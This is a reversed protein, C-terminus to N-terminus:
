FTFTGGLTVGLATSHDRPDVGFVALEGPMSLPAPGYYGFRLYNFQAYVRVNRAIEPVQRNFGLSFYNATNSQGYETPSRVYSRGMHVGSLSYSYLGQYWTLGGMFNYETASHGIGDTGNDFGSPFYCGTGAVYDCQFVQGSWYNRKIGWTGKWEPTFYHEGQLIAVTERPKKYLPSNDPNGVDGTFSGKSFSNQVGGESGQFTFEILDTENAYQAFLEMLRPRPPHENYPQNQVNRAFVIREAAATLELVLKSGNALEFPRSTYRLAQPLVGYGAGSESWASTIGLPYTLDDSRSWARTPMTGVRLQGYVPHSIDLSRDILDQGYIDAAGDRFRWTVLGDIKWASDFEHSLKGSLAGLHLPEGSSTASEGPTCYPGGGQTGLVGRPDPTFSCNRLGLSRNARLSHEEVYFGSIAAQALDGIDMVQEAAAIRTLALLAAMCAIRNM